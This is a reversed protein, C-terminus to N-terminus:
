HPKAAHDEFWQRAREQARFLAEPTLHKGLQDRKKVASEQMPGLGEGGTAVLLRFYAESYNQPVGYADTAYLDGLNYNALSHGREAAKQWWKVAEPYDNLVGKGSKYIEGLQYEAHASWMSNQESVKQYWQLAEAYDTPSVEKSACISEALLYQSFEDGQGAAKRFWFAAQVFDRAGRDGNYYTLGLCHQGWVEGRNASERYKALLKERTAADLDEDEDAEEEQIDPDEDRDDTRVNLAREIATVKHMLTSQRKASANVAEEIASV